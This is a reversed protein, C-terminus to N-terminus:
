WSHINSDLLISCIPEYLVSDEGVILTKELCVRGPPLDTQLFSRFYSAIAYRKILHSSTIMFRCTTCTISLIRSLMLFRVLLVIVSVLNRTLWLNSIPLSDIYRWCVSFSLLNLGHMYSSHYLPPSVPYLLSPVTVEPLDEPEEVKWLSM